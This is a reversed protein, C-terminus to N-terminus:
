RGSVAVADSRAQWWGWALLLIDLSFAGLLAGGLVDTPWHEGSAVRAVGLMVLFLLGITVTPLRWRPFRWVVLAIVLGIGVITRVLHGSPFSAPPVVDSLPAGVPRPRNVVHKVLASAGEGLLIGMVLWVAAGREHLLWLGGAVILILVSWVLVGALTDMVAVVAGLPTAMLGRIRAAITVDIPLPGTTVTLGLIGLTLAMIVGLIAGIAHWRVKTAPRAGHLDLMSRSRSQM